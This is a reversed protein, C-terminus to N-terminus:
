AMVLTGRSEAPAEVNSWHHRPCQPMSFRRCQTRSSVKPSSALRMRRPPAGCNRAAMRLEAMLRSRLRPAVLM